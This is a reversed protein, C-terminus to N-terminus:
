YKARKDWILLLKAEETMIENYATFISYTAGDNFYFRENINSLPVLPAIQTYDVRVQSNALLEAQIIAIM